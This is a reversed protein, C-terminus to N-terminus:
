NKKKYVQTNGATAAFVGKTQKCNLIYYISLHRKLDLPQKRIREQTYEGIYKQRVLWKVSLIGLHESLTAHVKM